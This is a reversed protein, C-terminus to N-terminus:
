FNYNLQIGGWNYRYSDGGEDNVGATFANISWNQTMDYIVRFNYEYAFESEGYITQVGTAVWCQFFGRDQLFGTTYALLVNYKEYEEPSFYEEPDFKSQFWKARVKFYIKEYWAPSYVLQIEETNRWNGDTSDTYSYMGVLVFEKSINYDVGVGYNNWMIDDNIALQSEVMSREYFTEFRWRELEKALYASGSINSIDDGENFRILGFGYTEFPLNKQGSLSLFNFNCDGDNDSYYAHGIEVQAFQAEEYQSQYGTYVEGIRLGDTDANWRVGGFLTEAYCPSILM